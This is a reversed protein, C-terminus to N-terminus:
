PAAFTGTVPPYTCANASLARKNVVNAGGVYWPYTGPPYACYPYEGCAAGGIHCGSADRVCYMPLAGTAYGTSVGYLAVPVYPSSAVATAIGDSTSRSLARSFSKGADSPASNPEVSSKADNASFLSAACAGAGTRRRPERPPARPRATAAFPWPPACCYRLANLLAIM